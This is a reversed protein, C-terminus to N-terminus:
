SGGIPSFHPQLWPGEQRVGSDNLQQALVDDLSGYGGDAEIERKDRVKLIAAEVADADAAVSRDVLGAKVAAHIADSPTKEQGMSEIAFASPLDINAATSLLIARYLAELLPRSFPGHRALYDLDESRLSTLSSGDGLVRSVHQEIRRLTPRIDILEDPIVIHYNQSETLATGEADFVLVRFDPEDFDLLNTSEYVLEFLGDETTADIALQQCHRITHEVLWAILGPAPAGSSSRVTGRVVTSRGGSQQDQNLDYLPLRLASGFQWPDLQPTRAHTDDHVWRFWLGGQRAASTRYEEAVTIAFRGSEDSVGSGIPRELDHDAFAEVQVGDSSGAGPLPLVVGSITWRDDSM